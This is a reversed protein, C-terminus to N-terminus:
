RRPAPPSARAILWTAVDAVLEDAGALEAAEHTTLVGVVHMGARRGAEIGAPADELVVCAAPDAGLEAAALLYGEPDPKGSGVREPTVVVAPRRLGAAAMRATLLPVTCSTVVAVGAFLGGDNLLAAAGPLAAVDASDNAQALDIAASEAVPDLQPAFEAIVEASPRGHMTAELAAVEVGHRQAWARWARRVSAFSDILTGDLDALVHTM